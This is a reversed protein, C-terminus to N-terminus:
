EKNLMDDWAFLETLTIELGIAIKEINELSINMQGREIRWMYTRHVKCVQAFGEQSHGQGKRLQRVRKGFRHKIDMAYILISFGSTNCQNFQIFRCNNNSWESNSLKIKVSWIGILVRRVGGGTLM